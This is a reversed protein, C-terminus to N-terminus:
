PESYTFVWNWGASNTLFKKIVDANLTKLLPVHFVLKNKWLDALSFHYTQRYQFFYNVTIPSDALKIEYPFFGFAIEALKKKNEISFFPPNTRWKLYFNNKFSFSEARAKLTNFIQMYNFNIM